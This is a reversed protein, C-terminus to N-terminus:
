GTRSAVNMLFDAGLQRWSDDVTHGTKSMAACHFEVWSTLRSQRANAELIDLFFRSCSLTSVRDDANGIVMFIPKGALAEKYHALRVAALDDRNREASFESLERWDTVPAIASVAAIRVDAALLRLALYGGRSIGYVVVRGEEAYDREICRGIVAMAEEVFEKFRDRGALWANRWGQIGAGYEDIRCGHNPLDFSLARHGQALALRVALCYPEVTLATERDASLSLLLLPRRALFEKRPSILKPRVTRGAISVEFEEVKGQLLVQPGRREDRKQEQANPTAASTQTVCWSAAVARGAHSLFTRRTM